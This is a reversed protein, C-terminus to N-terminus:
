PNTAAGSTETKKRTEEPSFWHGPIKGQVNGREKLLARLNEAIRQTIPDNWLRLPNDLIMHVDDWDAKSAGKARLYEKFEPRADLLDLLGRLVDNTRGPQSSRAVVFFGPTIPDGRDIHGPPPKEGFLNQYPTNASVLPKLRTPSLDVLFAEYPPFPASWQIRGTSIDESDPYVRIRVTAGEAVPRAFKVWFGGPARDVIMGVETTEAARAVPCLACLILIAGFSLRNAM